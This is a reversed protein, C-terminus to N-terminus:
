IGSKYIKIPLPMGNFESGASVTYAGANNIVISDNELDMDPLEFEGLKDLSDCTPGFVTCKYLTTGNYKKPYELKLKAHDYIVNNLSGYLGDSVYYIMKKEGKEEYYKKNILKLILSHSTEVMFRGPEGIFQKDYLKFDRISKKIVSSIDDFLKTKTAVFGGGIDILNINFDFLKAEDIVTKCYFLTTYYALPNLCGSGVHFSVGMINLNLSKATRFLETCENHDVGFKSNFKCVSSSDDGKIRLVLQADACYTSIKKLEEVSDFTMMMRPYVSNCYELSSIRKCPNAYIIESPENTISLVTEIEKQSACDFSKMGLSKFMYNIIEVDPNCKIAYFPQVFPLRHKWLDHQHKVKDFRILCVTSDKFVKTGRALM